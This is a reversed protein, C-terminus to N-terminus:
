KTLLKDFIATIESSSPRPANEHVLKGNQDYLLYRPITEVQLEDLFVSSYKDAVVYSSSKSELHKSSSLKWKAFDDDLSIYIFTVGKSTYNEFLKRSAPMEKICPACWSAWFDVYIIKGKNETLISELSTSGNNFDNLSLKASTNLKGNKTPKLNLKRVLFNSFSSDPVDAKFREMALEIEKASATKIIGEMAKLLLISKTNAGLWTSSKISDYMISYNALISNSTRVRPVMKQFHFYEIAGLYHQYYTSYLLSDQNISQSFKYFSKEPNINISGNFGQFNSSLKFEELDFKIRKLFYDHVEKPILNNKKLSDLILEEAEMEKPLELSPSFDNFFGPPCKIKASASFKNKSILKLKLLQYDIEHKLIKRNKVFLVPKLSDYNFVVSDGNHFLFSLNEIGKYAHSVDMIERKTKIRITDIGGQRKFKIEQRITNDDIYSIDFDNGAKTGNEFRYFRNNPPNIFILVVLNPNEKKEVVKEDKSCSLLIALAISCIVTRSIM